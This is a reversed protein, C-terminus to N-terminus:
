CWWYARDEESPEFGDLMPRDGAPPQAIVVPQALKNGSHYIFNGDLYKISVPLLADEVTEDNIMLEGAEIKPKLDLYLLRRLKRAEIVAWGDGGKDEGSLFYGMMDLYVWLVAPYRKERVNYFIRKWLKETFPVQYGNKLDHEFIISHLLDFRYHNERLVNKPIYTLNSLCKYLSYAYAENVAVSSHIDAERALAEDEVVGDRLTKRIAIFMYDHGLFRVIRELIRWSDALERKTDVGRDEELSLSICTDHFIEGILEFGENIHNVSVGGQTYHTEITASLAEIIVDVSSSTIAGRWSYKIAPYGFLNFGSILKPSKFIQDYINLSMSIGENNRHKYAFSKDNLLLSRILSPIGVNVSHSTINYREVLDFIYFLSNLKKTTLYEVISEESLVVDFVAVASKYEESQRDANKLAKCITEFNDLLVSLASIQRKEDSTSVELVLTEYFRRANNENYLKHSREAFVILSFPSVIFAVYALVDFIVPNTVPLTHYGILSVVVAKMLVLFLGIVGIYAFAWKQWFPRMSLVIDWKPKRLQYVALILGVATLAGGFELYTPITQPSHTCLLDSIFSAYCTGSQINGLMSSSIYEM